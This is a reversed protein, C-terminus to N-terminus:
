RFYFLIIGQEINGAFPFDRSYKFLYPNKVLYNHRLIVTIENVVVETLSFVVRMCIVIRITVLCIAEDILSYRLIFTESSVQLAWCRSEDIEGM